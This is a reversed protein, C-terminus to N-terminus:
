VNRFVNLEIMALRMELAIGGFKLSEANERFLWSCVHTLFLGYRLIQRQMARTKYNVSTIFNLMLSRTMLYKKIISTQPYSERARSLGERATEGPRLKLYSGDPLPLYQVQAPRLTITPGTLNPTFHFRDDQM